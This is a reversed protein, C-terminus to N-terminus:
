PCYIVYFSSKGKQIWYSSDVTFNNREATPLRLGHLIYQGSLRVPFFFNRKINVHKHVFNLSLKNVRMRAITFAHM